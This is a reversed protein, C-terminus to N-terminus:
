RTGNSLLYEPPQRLEIANLSDFLPKAYLDLEFYLPIAVILVPTPRPGASDLADGILRAGVGITHAVLLHAVDHGGDALGAARFVNKCSYTAYPFATELRLRLVYGISPLRLLPFRTGGLSRPRFTGTAVFAGIAGCHVNALAGLRSEVNFVTFTVIASSCSM